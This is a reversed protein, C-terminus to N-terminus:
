CISTRPKHLMHSFLLCFSVVSPAKSAVEEIVNWACKRFTKRNPGSNAIAILVPETGHVKMFLFAWLLHVPKTGSPFDCLNCVVSCVNASVGFLSNFDRNRGLRRDRNARELVDDAFCNFHNATLVVM